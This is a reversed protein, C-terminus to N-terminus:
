RGTFAAAHTVCCEEEDITPDLDVGLERRLLSLGSLAELDFVSLPSVM